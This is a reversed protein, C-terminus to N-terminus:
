KKVTYWDILERAITSKPSLNPLKDATFWKAEVIEVNDTKLEGQAYEVTFGIMLSDPFPWPQSGFYRINKVEIGVEEKIERRVCEELTEGPEVFGSIVSFVHNAFKKNRALLIQNDKIVAVIVAPSIRPYTIFGCSPCQKAREDLKDQNLSGCNGCFRSTRDWYIIQYGRGATQFLSDDVQGLLQRVGWFAFNDPVQIDTEIEAAYCLIQDLEGLYHKRKLEIDIDKIDQFTPIQISEGALKVLMDQNRFLFLYFDEM